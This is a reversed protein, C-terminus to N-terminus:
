VDDRPPRIQWVVGDRGKPARQVGSDQRALWRGLDGASGIGAADLLASLDSPPAGEARAARQMAEIATWVESATFAAGGTFDHLAHRLDADTDRLMPVLAEVLRDIESRVRLLDALIAAPTM